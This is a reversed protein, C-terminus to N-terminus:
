RSRASCGRTTHRRVCVLLVSLPFSKGSPARISEIMSAKSEIVVSWTYRGARDRSRASESSYALTRRLAVAALRSAVRESVFDM